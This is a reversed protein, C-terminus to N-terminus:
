VEKSLGNPRTPTPVEATIDISFQLPPCVATAEETLSITKFSTRVDSFLRKLAFVVDKVTVAKGLGKGGLGTKAGLGMLGKGGLSRHPPRGSSSPGAGRGPREGGFSPVM